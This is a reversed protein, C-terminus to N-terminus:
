NLLTMQLDILAQIKYPMMNPYDSYQNLRMSIWDNNCSNDDLFRNFWNSQLGQIKNIIRPNKHMPKTVYRVQDHYNQLLFVSSMNISINCANDIKFSVRVSGCGSFRFISEALIESLM